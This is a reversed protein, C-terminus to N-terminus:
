IGEIKEKQEIYSVIIDKEEIVIDGEYSIGCEEGETVKDTDKNGRKLSTAKGSGIKVEEDSEPNLRFIDLSSGKKIEGQLVKCGIIQKNKNNFFIALVKAKGFDIREIRPTISKEMIKKVSDILEYIVDFTLSQINERKILLSIQPMVKVRFALIFANSSKAIKFDSENVDGVESKLIKLSVREQSIEGLMEEIAELSGLFDAKIIINVNENESSIIDKKEKKIILKKISTEASSLDPFVMFIDGISPTSDFGSVTIPMSPLGREVEEGQSNKISKIKGKVSPTALIDGKKLTGSEIIVTAIAGKLSDIHSEIIVGQAPCCLDSQLNEMEAVLLILELLEEINERKKASVLVSPVKGGMSELYIDESLLQESVKTPNSEPKDIKNIAVIMPIGSEKIHKIAEKTQSKVGDDAAVVLVAIDAIKAGRSRMSSFAEHGPTDLFTIKKCDHDIEYAGIHQTIGGSEKSTIKLDKIAELISSKGHDVHGMIVVVPSRCETTKEKKM